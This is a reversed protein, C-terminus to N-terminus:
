RKEVDEVSISVSNVVSGGPELQRYAFYGDLWSTAPELGITYDGSGMSKWEVLVPLTADSYRVTLKKGIKRNLISIEPRRLRHFYCMEEENDCPADVLFMRAKNEAAWPTRPISEGADCIIEAGEDVLPYGGNIHYLMCYNETRFANNTLTDTIVVTGSGFATEIVRNLSLNEGFLAADRVTASIRVGKEDAKIANIEAPISHLRGHIPFGDRAGINDLGCTYLMGAPFTHPFEDKVGYLGNKTLFGINTGEHWLRLIDLCNSESLVFNLKGNSVNILRVGAGRGDNVTVRQAECLQEPTGIKRNM